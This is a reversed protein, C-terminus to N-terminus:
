EFLRAVNMLEDRVWFRQSCQAECRGCKLCDSAKGRAKALAEYEARVANPGADPAIAANYLRFFGPIPLSLPCAKTCEGCAICAITKAKM